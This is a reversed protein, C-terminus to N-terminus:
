KSKWFCTLGEYMIVLLVCGAFLLRATVIIYLQIEERWTAALAAEPLSFLWLAHGILQGPGGTISM